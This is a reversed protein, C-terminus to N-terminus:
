YTKLLFSAITDTSRNTNRSQKEYMNLILIIDFSKYFYLFKLQYVNFKKNKYKSKIIKIKYYNNRDFLEYWILKL